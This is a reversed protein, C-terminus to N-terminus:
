SPLGVIAVAILILGAVVIGFGALKIRAHKIKLYATLGLIFLVAGIIGLTTEISM